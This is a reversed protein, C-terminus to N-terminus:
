NRSFLLNLVRSCKLKVELHTHFKIFTCLPIFKKAYCRGYCRSNVIFVHGFFLNTKVFVFSVIYFFFVHVVRNTYSINPIIKSECIGNSPQNSVFLHDLRCQTRM